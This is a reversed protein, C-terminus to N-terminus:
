KGFKKLCMIGINMAQNFFYDGFHGNECEFKLNKRKINGRCIYCKNGTYNKRVKTIIISSKFAKYQLYNVIRRRLYIPSYKGVRKEFHSNVDDGMDAISIVEVRNDKCFNVIEKSVKHAYEDSIHNLLKWYKNHDKMGFNSGNQRHKKIQALIKSTRNKYENGGKIFKTKILKRNEYKLIHNINEEYKEEPTM